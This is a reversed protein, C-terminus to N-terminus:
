LKMAKFGRAADELATEVPVRELSSAGFFGQVGETKELVYQAEKVGELPGGHVLVIVDERVAVCADRVEQTVRVAEELGMGADEVGGITGGVTLGLHVVIIDAGAKVMAVGQEPDFVYPATLLGQRHAEAIMSVELAYGMGTAELQARFTGDILGVTPFNQVGCFGLTHLHTLFQPMQRFPDTGCVGALVPTDQM